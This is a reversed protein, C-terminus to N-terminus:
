KGGQYNASVGLISSSMMDAFAQTAVSKIADPTGEANIVLSFTQTTPTQQRPLLMSPNSTSFQQPMIAPNKRFQAIQKAAETKKNEQYWDYGHVERASIVPEDSGMLSKLKSSTASLNHSFTDLVYGLYQFVSDFNGLWMTWDDPLLRYKYFTEMLDEKWLKIKADTAAKDDTFALEVLLAGGLAMNKITEAWLVPIKALASVFGNDSEIWGSLITSKGQLTEVLDYIFAAAIVPWARAAMRLGFKLMNIIRVSLPAPPLVPVRTFWGWLGGAIGGIKFLKNTIYLAILVEKLDWLAGILHKTRNVWLDIDEKNEQFWVRLRGLEDAMKDFVTVFTDIMFSSNIETLLRQWATRMKEMKKAPSDLMKKILDERSLTKMHDIVKVLEEMKVQGKEMAKFLKAEADPDKGYLAEAFIGVAGPLAESLQGKLEESMVQGKSAMQAFARVGRSQADSSLGLMTSIESFSSFLEQTKEIGLGKKTSALLQRYMNSTERLPLSLRDVEKNLFAVQKAAEEASGTIFEFQPAQAIDFNAQTFSQQTFAGAGVAALNGRTILGGLGGAVGGIHWPNANGSSGGSQTQQPPANGQRNRYVMNVVQTIPPLTTLKGTYHLKVEQKIPPFDKSKLKGKYTYRADRLSITSAQLKLKPIYTLKAGKLSISSAQLKVGITKGVLGQLQKRVAAIESTLGARDFKFKVLATFSSLPTNM